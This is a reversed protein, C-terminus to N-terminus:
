TARGESEFVAGGEMFFFLFLFLFPELGGNFSGLWLKGFGCRGLIFCEDVKSGSVQLGEAGESSCPFM